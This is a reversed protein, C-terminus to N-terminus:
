SSPMFYGTVDFIVHASVGGAAAPAAYTVALTGGGGLQVTVANARDDGKPFNLTSSTPNNMAIPGIFLFGLYGQGTITLNGTVATANGPVGGAGTVQFARAVHSSFPGPLGGTGDRTDLIRAPTLPVYVSGAMTPVFYGTVDFIVHATVAGVGVPAAYTVALKGGTGLQVTVANARDDNMPFNLTSSTPYDMAVPGIFLFGLYGQGTVTLNGTVATASGPVGGAGTVQFARAQHSVFPGALGGTGDRTDLIRAPVLPVYTAGSTDPTFYGTVDFIVHASPGTTPAAFTVWLVGGVGLTVTVANARDDNKPFNLTSSTPYNMALPGIYLFGISTPQTVTLNGTVSTANGPVGGAGTVQFPRAMHSAFPGSLGGTGDRTDLIRAPTLAHYTAPLVPTTVVTRVTDTTLGSLSVMSRYYVDGDSAPHDLDPDIQSTFGGNRTSSWSTVHNNFGPYTKWM